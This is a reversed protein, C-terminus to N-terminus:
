LSTTLHARQKGVLGARWPHEGRDRVAVIEQIMCQAQVDVSAPPALHDVHALHLRAFVNQIHGRSRAVNSERERM